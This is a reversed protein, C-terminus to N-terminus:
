AGCTAPCIGAITAAGGGVYSAGWSKKMSDNTTVMMQEMRIKIDRANPMGAIIRPTITIFWYIDVNHLPISLKRTNPAQTAMGM